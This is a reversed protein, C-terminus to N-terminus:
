HSNGKDESQVTSIVNSVGPVRRVQLLIHLVFWCPWAWKYYRGLLAGLPLFLGWAVYMFMGHLHVYSLYPPPCGQDLDTEGDGSLRWIDTLYDSSYNYPPPYHM